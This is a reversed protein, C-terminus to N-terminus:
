PWRLALTFVRGCFTSLRSRAQRSAKYLAARLSHIRLGLQNKAFSCGRCQFLACLLVLPNGTLYIRDSVFGFIAFPLMLLSEIWFAARWGLAGGVQMILHFIWVLGSEFLPSLFLFWWLLKCVEELFPYIVSLSLCGLYNYGSSVLLVSFLSSGQSHESVVGGYVYGIAIGVPIFMYFISLWASSQLGVM